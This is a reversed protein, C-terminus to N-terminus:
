RSSTDRLLRQMMELLLATDVPRALCARAGLRLVEAQDVDQGALVVVAPMRRLGIRLTELFIRGDIFPMEWDLVVVDPQGRGVVRLGAASTSAFTTAYGAQRLTAVTAATEPEDDDVVLIQRRLARVEGM